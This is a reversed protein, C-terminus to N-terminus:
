KRRELEIPYDITGVPTDFHAAGKLKWSTVQGAALLGRLQTGIDAYALALQIPLPRTQGAPVTLRDRVQGDFAKLDNVYLVYDLRDLVIDTTTPNELQITVLLNAGMLDLGLLQVNRLSFKAQEIAKRQAYAQFLSCGPLTPTGVVLALAVLPIWSLHPRM